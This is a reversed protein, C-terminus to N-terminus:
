HDCQAGTTTITTVMSLHMPQRAPGPVSKFNVRAHNRTRFFHTRVAACLPCGRASYYRRLWMLLIPYLTYAYTGCTTSIRTPENTRGQLSVIFLDTRYYTECGSLFRTAARQYFIEFAGMVQMTQLIDPHVDRLQGDHNLIHNLIHSLDGFVKVFNKELSFQTPLPPTSCFAVSLACSCICKDCQLKITLEPRELQIIEINRCFQIFGFTTTPPGDFYCPFLLVMFIPAVHITIFLTGQYEFM